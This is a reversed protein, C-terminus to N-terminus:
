PKHRHARALDLIKDATEKPNDISNMRIQGTEGATELWLDGTNLMRQGLSQDARVDQVNALEMTRTTKSLLGSEYKLRGEAVTLLVTRRQIHRVSILLQLAVPLILPAWFPVSANIPTTFWYVLIAIELVACAVYGVLVSKLSPRVQMALM